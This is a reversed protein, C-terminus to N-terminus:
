NIRYGCAKCFKTLGKNWLSRKCVPCISGKVAGCDLCDETVERAHEIFMSNREKPCDCTNEFDERWWLYAQSQFLDEQGCIKCTKLTNRVINESGCIGCNFHGRKRDLCATPKKNRKTKKVVDVYPARPDEPVILPAKQKSM